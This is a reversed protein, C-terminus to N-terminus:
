LENLAEDLSMMKKGTRKSEKIERLGAAIDKLVEQTKREKETLKKKVPKSTNISKAILKQEKDPLTHIYEILKETSHEKFM